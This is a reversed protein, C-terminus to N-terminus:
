EASGAKDGTVGTKTLTVLLGFQTGPAGTTTGSQPRRFKVMMVPLNCEQLQRNCNCTVALGTAGPRESRALSLPDGDGTVSGEIVPERVQSMTGPEDRGTGTM